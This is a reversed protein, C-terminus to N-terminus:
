VYVGKFTPAVAEVFWIINESKIRDGATCGVTYYKTGNKSGVFQGTTEVAKEEVSQVIDQESFSVGKVEPGKSLNLSELVTDSCSLVVSSTDKPSRRGEEVGVLFSLVVIGLILLTAISRYREELFAKM